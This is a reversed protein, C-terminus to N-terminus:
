PGSLRAVLQSRTRRLIAKGAWYVALSFLCWYLLGMLSPSPSGLYALRYGEVMHTLPNWDLLVRFAGGAKEKPYIIPTVWFLLTFGVGVLQAIDRFFVNLCAVSLCLGYTMLLQACFLLFVVPLYDHKLSRNFILVVLFVATGVLQHLFASSVVSSPLVALPFRIKRILNANEIFSQCSWTVSEQIAWWPLLACFLYEAFSVPSSREGLRIQLVVSFVVTYLLLQLFPNLISWFAGMISGTHRARFDRSVLERLLYKHHLFAALM